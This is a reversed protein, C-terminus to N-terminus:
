RLHAAPQPTPTTHQKFDMYADHIHSQCQPELANVSHASRISHNCLCEYAPALLLRTKISTSAIASRIECASNQRQQKRM